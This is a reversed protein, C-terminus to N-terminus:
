GGRGRGRAIGMKVQYLLFLELDKLLVSVPQEDHRVKTTSSAQQETHLVVKKDLERAAVFGAQCDVAIPPGPLCNEHVCNKGGLGLNVSCSM